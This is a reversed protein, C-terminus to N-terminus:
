CDCGGGQCVPPAIRLQPNGLGAFTPDQLKEVPPPEAPEPDAGAYLVWRTINELVGPHIAFEQHTANIGWAPGKGLRSSDIPVVGDGQDTYYYSNPDLFSGTPKVAFRTLQNLGSVTTLVRPPPVTEPDAFFRHVSVKTFELWFQQVGEVGPWNAAQYLDAARPDNRLRDADLFPLLAYFGPWTAIVEILRSKPYLGLYILNLAQNIQNLSSDTGDFVKTPNYCGRHPTGITIIRRVLNEKGDFKLYKWAARAVLGGMSHAVLTATEYRGANAVLNQMLQAGSGTPSIRWDYPYGGVIWQNPDLEARLRKMLPDYYTDWVAEPESPPFRGAPATSGPAFALPDLGNRTVSYYGLWTRQYLGTIQKAHLLTGAFGPIVIVLNKAM